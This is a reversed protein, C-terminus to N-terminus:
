ATYVLETALTADVAEGRREACLDDRCLAIAASFILQVDLATLVTISPKAATL